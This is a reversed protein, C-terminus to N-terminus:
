QIGLREKIQAARPDKPNANVWNIAAQNPNPQAAPQTTVPVGGIAAAAEASGPPPAAAQPPPAAATPQEAPGSIQGQAARAAAQEPSLVIAGRAIGANVTEAATAGAPAPQLAEAPPTTPAPATPTTPAATVTPAAGATPQILAPYRNRLEAIEKRNAALAAEGKYPQPEAGKSIEESRQAAAANAHYAINGQLVADRKQVGEPLTERRLAAADIRAARAKADDHVASLAAAGARGAQTTLADVHALLVKAYAPAYEPTGRKAAINELDRTLNQIDQNAVIDRNQKVMTTVNHTHEMAASHEEALSQRAQQTLRKIENDLRKSEM